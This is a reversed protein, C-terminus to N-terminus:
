GIKLAVAAAKQLDLKAYELTTEPSSHGLAARVPDWNEFAARARTAFSHRLQHPTWPKVEAMNLKRGAEAAQALKARIYARQVARRYSDASYHTGPRTLPRRKRRRAPEHSPWRPYRRSERRAANRASESECPQFLYEELNPRLWPALVAQARPGIAVIRPRGHHETKHTEPRYLWVDGGMEILGTKMLCVEGSRMGTFWQLQVMAWIAPPAYPEILAVEEWAVPERPPLERGGQGPRLGSVCALRQPHTPDILENEAAWAFAQRIRGVHRNISKRGLGADIMAQRCAKLKLPGFEAVPLDAYILLYRMATRQSHVESTPRGHKRYYRYVHRLYLEVLEGITEVQGPEPHQGALWEAILRRYNRKAKRSNHPGLYYDRGNVRVRDQGTPKHHVRKPISKPRAM